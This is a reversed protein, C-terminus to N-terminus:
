EIYGLERLQEVMEKDTQASKTANGAGLSGYTKITQKPHATRFASTFLSEFVKGDFDEAVPLGMGYLVTPTIDHIRIGELNAKPDIDPGAAFFVGPPEWGHGGSHEILNKVVRVMKTGGCAMETDVGETLVDIVLDAKEKQKGVPDKVSLAPKGSGWTCSGIWAVVKAKAAERDSVKAGFKVWKRMQMM